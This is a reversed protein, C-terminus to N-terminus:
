RVLTYIADGPPHFQTVAIPAASITPCESCSLFMDAIMMQRPLRSGLLEMADWQVVTALVPEALYAHIFPFRSM